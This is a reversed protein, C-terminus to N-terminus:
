NSEGQYIATWYVLGVLALNAQANIVFSGAAVAEPLWVRGDLGSISIAYNNDPFATSFTVTAKKPNGAFSGPLVRGSKDKLLDSFLAVQDAHAGTGTNEEANLWYQDDYAAAAEVAGAAVKRWILDGATIATTLSKARAVDVGNFQSGLDFDVTPHAILLGLEYIPVDAAVTSVFLGM